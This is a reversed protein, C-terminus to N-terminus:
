RMERLGALSMQLTRPIPTASMSIVDVKLELQRLLEKEEVGFGQEWGRDPPGPRPACTARSVRHTGILIDLLRRSAALAAM